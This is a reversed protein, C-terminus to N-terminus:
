VVEYKTTNARGVKAMTRDLRSKVERIRDGEADKYGDGMHIAKSRRQTEKDKGQSTDNRLHQSCPNNDVALTQSASRNSGTSQVVTGFDHVEVLRPDAPLYSNSTVNDKNGHGEEEAEKETESRGGGKDTNIKRGGEGEEERTGAIRTRMQDSTM